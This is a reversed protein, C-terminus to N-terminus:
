VRSTPRQLLLLLMLMTSSDASQLTAAMGEDGAANASRKEFARSEMLTGEEGPVDLDTTKKSSTRFTSAVKVKGDSGSRGM